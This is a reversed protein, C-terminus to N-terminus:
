ILKKIIKNTSSLIRQYPVRSDSILEPQTLTRLMALRVDFYRRLFEPNSSELFAIKLSDLDLFYPRSVSPFMKGILSNYPSYNKVKWHTESYLILTAIREILFTKLPVIEQKYRTTAKLECGLTNKNNEFIDYIDECIEFWRDWFARKAIFYNCFVTNKSTTVFTDIDINKFYRRGVNEFLPRLEPHAFCGQEVINLFLSIQDYYPSFLIVDAEINKEVFLNVSAASLFTKQKFKPSLFGYFMNNELVETQLFNRIHWYEFWDPRPNSEDGVIEFGKELLERIEPSYSIQFIRAIRSM